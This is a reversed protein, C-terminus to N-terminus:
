PAPRPPGATHQRGRLTRCPITAFISLVALLQAFLLNAPNAGRPAPVHQLGFQTHHVAWPLPPLHMSPQLSAM